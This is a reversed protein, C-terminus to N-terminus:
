RVETKVSRGLRAVVQEILSNAHADSFRATVPVYWAKAMAPGALARCKVADKETMLVPAADRFDFDAATFAHHDPFPHEVIDLGRARLDAFFRQPNGIGAVAHVRQRSFSELARDAHKGTLSMVRGPPLSMVVPQLDQATHIHALSPHESNGNIVLHDTRTAREASERLPGAPLLQGNGFGRAGDVVTIEVERALRLHQLGDDALIVDAGRKVLLQAGAVRDISVVVDCGTRQRLLLPEDGVIQARAGPEVVIPTTASAGYGRSLIGVRLGRKTLQEALWAV